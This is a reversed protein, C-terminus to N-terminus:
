GIHVWTARGPKENYLPFLMYYGPPALNSNRPMKSVLTISTSHSQTTTSSIPLRLQRQGMSFSHTSYPANALRLTFASTNVQQGAGLHVDVSFTEGYGLSSPVQDSFAPRTHGPTLYGPSFAEVSLETPFEAQFDYHVHTNSGAIPRDPWVNSMLSRVQSPFEGRIFQHNTVEWLLPVVANLLSGSIGNADSNSFM